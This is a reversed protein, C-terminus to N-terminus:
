ALLRALEGHIRGNTALIQRDFPSWQGLAFDTVRGGAETLILAGAATDWPHLNEEWFGEFRGAAVFCLDLAASGLRRVGQSAGLVSTLRAMLGEMRTALDYPFGTVLLSEFVSDVESVRIPANNKFAGGGKTASFLEGSVPNHVLGYLIEGKCAFAISVAFIPIHHAYNTTGDLPDIIWVGDADGGSDGSEEALIRDNPFAAGIIGKIIKESGLDAETVLDIGGKKNVSHAKGFRQALLLGAQHAAGLAVREIKQLDRKAEM